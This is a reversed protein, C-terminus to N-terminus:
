FNVIHHLLLVRASFVTYYKSSTIMGGRLHLSACGRVREVRRGGLLDQWRGMMM